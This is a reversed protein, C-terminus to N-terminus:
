SVTSKATSSDYVVTRTCVAGGAGENMWQAWSIGWGSMGIGSWNMAETAGDECNGSAPLGFQQTESAPASGSADSSGSGDGGGGGGGTSYTISIERIDTGAGITTGMKTWFSAGSATPDIDYILTAGNSIVCGSACSTSTGTPTLVSTSFNLDSSGFSNKIAVSTGVVNLIGGGDITINEQAQAPTALAISGIGLGISALVALVRRM